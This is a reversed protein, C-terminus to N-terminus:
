VLKKSLRIKTKRRAKLTNPLKTLKRQKSKPKM